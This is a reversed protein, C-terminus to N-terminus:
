GAVGLIASTVKIMMDPYTGQVNAVMDLAFGICLTTVLGIPQGILNRVGFYRGRIKRPIVDSMWNMWAPGSAQMLSWSILLSLLMTPWWWARAEPLLWPIMATVTWMFRGIGALWLFAQKRRGFKEVLYSAPVQLLTGFFPLTALVGFGYEPLGMEKSFRTMAAGTISWLWVSGFTWAYLAFGLQQRLSLSQGTNTRTRLLAPKPQTSHRAMDYRPLAYRTRGRRADCAPPRADYPTLEM